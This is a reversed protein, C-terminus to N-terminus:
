TVLVHGEEKERKIHHTFSRGATIIALKRLIEAVVVMALGINSIAWHEKMEPFLYIEVVYEVLSGVMAVVYSKTILLSELNVNNKGHFSLALLYESGDFFFIALFIQSLQRFATFSFIETMKRFFVVVDNRLIFTSTLTPTQNREM